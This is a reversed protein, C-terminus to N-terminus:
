SFKERVQPLYKNNSGAYAGSDGPIIRPEIGHKWLVYSFTTQDRSSYKCNMEWWSLMASQVRFTNRYAFAGLAYLGQKAPFSTSRLFQDTKLLVDKDDLKWEILKAIEEYSCDRHRHKFLAVDSGTLFENVFSRPDVALENIYDHWIYCDYGPVLLFGLMKPLKANRRDVYSDISSFRHLEIQNWVKVDHKRNVFAHYTVTDSSYNVSPDKLTANNLGALGTLIAIRM